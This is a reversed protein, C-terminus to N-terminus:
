AVAFPERGRLTQIRAKRTRLRRVQPRGSRLAPRQRLLPCRRSFRSLRQGRVRGEHPGHQRAEAALRPDQRSRELNRRGPRHIKCPGAQEDEEDIAGAQRDVSKESETTTAHSRRRPSSRRSINWFGEHPETNGPYDPGDRQPPNRCGAEPPECNSEAIRNIDEHQGALSTLAWSFRNAQPQETLRMEDPIGSDTQSLEPGNSNSAVQSGTSLARALLLM